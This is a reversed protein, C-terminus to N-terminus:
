GNKVTKLNLQWKVFPKAELAAEKLTFCLTHDTPKSWHKCLYNRLGQSSFCLGKNLGIRRIKFGDPSITKSLYVMIGDVSFEIMDGVQLGLLQCAPENFYFGSKKRLYFLPEDSMVYANLTARNLLKM